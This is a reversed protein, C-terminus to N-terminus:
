IGLKTLKGVGIRLYIDGNYIDCGQAQKLLNEGDKIYLEERICAMDKVDLSKIKEVEKRYENTFKTDLTKNFYSLLSVIGSIIIGATIPIIAVKLTAIFLKKM